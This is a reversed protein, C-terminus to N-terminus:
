KKSEIAKNLGLQCVNAQVYKLTVVCYFISMHIFVESIMLVIFIIIVNM